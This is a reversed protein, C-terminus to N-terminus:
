AFHPAAAPTAAPSKVMSIVPPAVIGNTTPAPTAIAAAETELSTEARLDVSISLFAALFNISVYGTVASSRRIRMFFDDSSSLPDSHFKVCNPKHNVHNTNLCNEQNKPDDKSAANKGRASILGELGM